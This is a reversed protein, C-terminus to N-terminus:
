MITGPILSHPPATKGHAQLFSLFYHNHTITVIECPFSYQDHSQQQCIRLKWMTHKYMFYDWVHDWYAEIFSKDEAGRVKDM